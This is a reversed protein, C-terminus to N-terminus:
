GRICSGAANIRSTQPLGCLRDPLRWSSSINSCLLPAIGGLELIHGDLKGVFRMVAESSRTAERMSECDYNTRASLRHVPVCRESEHVESHFRAM